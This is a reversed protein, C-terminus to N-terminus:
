PLMKRLMNNKLTCRCIIKAKRNYIL